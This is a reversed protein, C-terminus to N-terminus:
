WELYGVHFEKKKKSRSKPPAVFFIHPCYKHNEWRFSDNGWLRSRLGFGSSTFRHDFGLFDDGWFLNAEGTYDGLQGGLFNARGKCGNVYALGDNKRGVFNAGVEAKGLQGGKM